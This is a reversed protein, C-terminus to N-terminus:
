LTTQLLDRPVDINVRLYRIMARWYKGGINTRWNKGSFIGGRRVRQWPLLTENLTFYDGIVGEPNLNIFFLM